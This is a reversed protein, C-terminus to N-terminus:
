ERSAEARARAHEPCKWAAQRVRETTWTEIRLGDTAADAIVKRLDRKPVNEMCAMRLCGCEALGVYTRPEDAM